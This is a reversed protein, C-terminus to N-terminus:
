EYFSRIIDIVRQMDATSYRQDIPLPLINEAYRRELVSSKENNLVDAWYMAVFVNKKILYERLKKGDKCLFPYVMPVVTAQDIDFVVGVEQSLLNEGKLMDHLVNFNNARKQAVVDYDVCSLIRQTFASMKAGGAKRLRQESKRYEQYSNQPGREIRQILHETNFDSNPLAAEEISINVSKYLYAGDPVGFFKRASYIAAGSEPAASYFSQSNDVVLNDGYLELLSNVISSKIGFYNVYLFYEKAELHPLSDPEFCSNINYFCYNIGAEDLADSLSSCCYAPMYVKKCEASLLHASLANRALNFKIASSHYEFKVEPMELEFFGGIEKM